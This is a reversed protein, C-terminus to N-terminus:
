EQNEKVCAKSTPASSSRMETGSEHKPPKSSRRRMRVSPGRTATQAVASRPARWKRTVVAMWRSFSAGARRVARRRERAPEVRRREESDSIGRPRGERTARLTTRTTTSAAAEAPEIRPRTSCPESGKASGRQKKKTAEEDFATKSAHPHTAKVYSEVAEGGTCRRKRKASKRTSHSVGRWSAMTLFAATSRKRQGTPTGRRKEMSSRLQRLSIRDIRDVGREREM